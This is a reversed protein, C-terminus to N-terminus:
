LHCSKPSAHVQSAGRKAAPEAEPDSALQRPPREPGCRISSGWKVGVDRTDSGSSQGEDFACKIGALWAGGRGCREQMLQAEAQKGRM